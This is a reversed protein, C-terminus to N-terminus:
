TFFTSPVCKGSLARLPARKANLDAVMMAVQDCYLESYIHDMNVRNQIKGCHDRLVPGWREEQAEALRLGQLNARLRETVSKRRGDKGEANLWTAPTANDAWMGTVSLTLVLLTL